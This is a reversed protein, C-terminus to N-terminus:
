IFLAENEESYLLSLLSGSAKETRANKKFSIGFGINTLGLNTTANTEKTSTTRNRLFSFTRTIYRPTRM